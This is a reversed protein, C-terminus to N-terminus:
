SDGTLLRQVDAYSPMPVTQRDADPDLLSGATIAAQLAKRFPWSGSSVQAVRLSVLEAISRVSPRYLINLPAPVAGAILRTAEADVVGPVFFGDAGADTYAAGRRLAENLPDTTSAPLWFTDTRANLFLDPVRNKVADIKRVHLDTSAVSGDPRGDELNVGVVGLEHLEEVLDAVAVPNDSFGGEIDVTVLAPVRELARALAVTEARTVSTGDPKGAAASVGLSTTGVAVHGAHAFAMASAFDWANPLLLPRSTHHLQRFAGCRESRTSKRSM